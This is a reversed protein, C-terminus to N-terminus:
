SVVNSSNRWVQSSARPHPHCLTFQKAYTTSKHACLNTFYGSKIFHARSIKSLTIPKEADSPLKHFIKKLLGLLKRLKAAVTDSNRFVFEWINSVTERNNQIFDSNTKPIGGKMRLFEWREHFIEKGGKDADRGDTTFFRFLCIGEFREKAFLSKRGLALNIIYPTHSFREQGGTRGHKQIRMDVGYFGDTPPLTRRM